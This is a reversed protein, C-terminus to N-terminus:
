KLSNLEELVPNVLSSQTQIWKRWLNELDQESKASTVLNAYENQYEFAVKRRSPSDFCFLDWDTATLTDPTSQKFREEMLRWADDRDAKMVLPSENIIDDGQKVSPITNGSISPYKGGIGGIAQGEPLLSVLEGKDDYKWDINEFGLNQMKYGLDTAGFDLMDMWRELKEDSLNPNFIHTGWFNIVDESHYYTDEGVVTAIAVCDDPNLNLNPEFYRRRCRDIWITTAEGFYGGSIGSVRFQDYDEQDKLAYFEHALVGQSWAKYWLKLGMLTEESAPGWKYKGDKDKYFSLCHPSNSQVFLRMAWVPRNSIPLLKAGLKGPDKEKVLRGYELIESTTYVDKVPFGVAEAWDKRFFFSPHNPLPDLAYKVYRARPLFYVGGFRRELEPGLSTAEFVKAVNPWREKWNDPLKKILGQEVMAAGDPHNYNFICVDPMDGSNIWIRLRELWNDISLATVDFVFNFSDSWWKGLPDGANYDYGEITQANAFTITVKNAYNMTPKWGGPFETKVPATNVQTQAEKKGGCSSLAFAAILCSFSFIMIRKM